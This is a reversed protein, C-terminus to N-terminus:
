AEISDYLQKLARRARRLRTWIAPTSCGFLQGCEAGSLGDWYTALLLERQDAALRDLAELLREGAPDTVGARGLSEAVQRHLTATRADARRQNALLYKATVFLWGPSPVHGASKEWALRFVEGTLDEALALQGTRRHVYALVRPQQAAYLAAFRALDDQRTDPQTVAVERLVAAAEM